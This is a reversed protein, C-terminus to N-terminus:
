MRKVSLFLGMMFSLFILLLSDLMMQKGQATLLYYYYAQQFNLKFNIGIFVILFLLPSFNAIRIELLRNRDQQATRQSNRMDSILERLSASMDVGEEIALSIMQVFYTSWVHGLGVAFLSLSEDTNRSTSLNFSLQEFVARIPPRLQKSQVLEQLVIRVNKPHSMVYHQYFVEVAPLFEMRTKMHQSILRMRLVIWPLGGAILGVTLAGRGSLFLLSGLVLGSLGLLIYLGIFQWSKLPWRVSELMQSLGRLKHEELHRIYTKLYGSRHSHWLRRRKGWHQLLLQLLPAVIIFCLVLLVVITGCILVGAWM